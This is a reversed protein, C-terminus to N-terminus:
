QDMQACSRWPTRFIGAPVVMRSSVILQLNGFHDGDPLDLRKASVSKSMIEARRQDNARRLLPQHRLATKSSASSHRTGTAIERDLTGLM